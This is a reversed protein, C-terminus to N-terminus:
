LSDYKPGIACTTVLPLNVRKARCFFPLYFIQKIKNKAQKTTSKDIGVCDQDQKSPASPTLM